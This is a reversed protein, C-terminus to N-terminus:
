RTDDTGGARWAAGCEPCVTCGDPEPALGNLPYACAVCGDCRALQEALRDRRRRVWGPNRMGVYIFLGAGAYPVWWWMPDGFASVVFAVAFVFCSGSILVHCLPNGFGRVVGRYEEWIAQVNAASESRGRKGGARVRHVFGRDDRIQSSRGTIRHKFDM